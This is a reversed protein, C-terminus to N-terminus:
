GKGNILHHLLRLYESQPVAGVIRQAEVFRPTDAETDGPQLTHFVVTPIATVRYTATAERFDEWVLARAKGTEWDQRFTEMDLGAEQAVEYIEERRSINKGQTFFAEFLLLHMTQFAEEGQWSACKAAELAPLSWTPFDEREWRTFTIGDEASLLAARRWAMERYTGRFTVNPDPEPRLPFSKREIILHEGWAEEM